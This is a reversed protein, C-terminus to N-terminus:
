RRCRWKSVREGDNGVYVGSNAIAGGSHRGDEDDHWRPMDDAGRIENDSAADHNLKNILEKPQTLM